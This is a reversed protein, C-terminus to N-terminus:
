FSASLVPAGAGGTLVATYRKIFNLWQIVPAQTLEEYKKHVNVLEGSQFLLTYQQM